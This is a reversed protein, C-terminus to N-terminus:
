TGRPEEVRHAPVLREVGNEDARIQEAQRVVDGAGEGFLREQQRAEVVLREGPQGRQPLRVLQDGAQEVVARLLALERLRREAEVVRAARPRLGGFPRPTPVRM